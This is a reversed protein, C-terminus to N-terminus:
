ILPLPHRVDDGHRQWSCVRDCGIGAGVLLESDADFIQATRQCQRRRKDCRANQHLPLFKTLHIGAHTLEIVSLCLHFPCEEGDSAKRREDAHRRPREARM